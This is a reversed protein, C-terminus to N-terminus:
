RRSQDFGRILRRPEGSRSDTGWGERYHCGPDSCAYLVMEDGSSSVSEGIPRMPVPQVHHSCLLSGDNPTGGSLEETEEIILIRRHIAPGPHNQRRDTPM